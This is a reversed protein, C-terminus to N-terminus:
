RGRKLLNNATGPWWQHLGQAHHPIPAGLFRQQSACGPTQDDNWLHAQLGAAQWSQIRSSAHHGTSSVSVSTLIVVLPEEKFMYYVSAAYPSCSKQGTEINGLDWGLFWNPCENHTFISKESNAKTYHEQKLPDGTFTFCDMLQMGNILFKWYKVWEAVVFM